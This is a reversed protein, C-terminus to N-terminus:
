ANEWELMWSEILAHMEIFRGVGPHDAGLRKKFSELADEFAVIADGDALNDAYAVIIEEPTEPIYDKPPLGLKVAEEKPIGSGIHREIISIVKGSFGIREAIEVGAVAHDIAHTRSRGIDHHIGGKRVLDNDVDIRVKEAIELAKETVAISHRIVSESCGAEKLYELDSENIM